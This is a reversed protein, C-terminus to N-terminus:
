RVAIGHRTVLYMRLANVHLESRIWSKALVLTSRPAASRRVTRSLGGVPSGPDLVGLPCMRRRSHGAARVPTCIGKGLSPHCKMGPVHTVSEGKTPSLWARSPTDSRPRVDGIRQGAVRRRSSPRKEFTFRRPTEEPRYGEYYDVAVVHSNGAKKSYRSRKAGTPRNMAGM